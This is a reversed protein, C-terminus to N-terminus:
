LASSRPTAGRGRLTQMRAFAGNLAPTWPLLPPPPPLVHVGHVSIGAVHIGYLSIPTGRVFAIRIYNCPVYGM